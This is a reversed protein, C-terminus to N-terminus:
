SLNIKDDDTLVIGPKSKSLVAKYLLRNNQSGGDVIGATEAVLQKHSQIYKALSRSHTLRYVENYEESNKMWDAIESAGFTYKPNKRTIKRAYDAWACLGQITYDAEAITENTKEALFEPIWGVDDMGFVEAMLMICQELNVLRSQAAYHPNWKEKVLKFFLHLVHLHHAVWAERGGFKEIQKLKWTGEFSSTVVAGDEVKVPKNLELLFSRQILDSQKFPHQIATFGFVSMIRISREDAETFYKRMTIRPDPETVLRCLDDSMRQSLNKDTMHVNDIVHLGGSNAISAQWDKFDNPTNKLLATGTLINLRIEYLTSKGSGPEGTVIEVPLQTGRWRFLWPSIYYLLAAITAPRGPNKLRVEKMVTHWWCDLPEKHRKELEKTLIQSDLGNEITSEFLVEDAGNPLITYPAKREGTIKVYQSNNIQFRVVDEGSKHRAITRHPYVNTIPDEGGFQASIWDMIKTDALVSINYDRYLMRGFETEHIKAVNPDNINVKMLMKTEGDFYYMQMADPSYMRRGRADLETILSLATNQAMKRDLKNRQLMKGIFERVNPHRPFSSMKKNVSNLLDMFKDIGEEVLYDDLGTKKGDLFPLIVQKIQGLRFGKHRLEYGLRAAARQPGVALGERSDTDYIIYFVTKKFVCFDLLEKLGIAMPSLMLEDFNASPLKIQLLGSKSGHYPSIEAIKPIVITKNQWSDVGGFAICPIGMKCALAAKKEGETMCVYKYGVAKFCQMFNKPFYVHNPTEKPQLYKISTNNLIKARYFALLKGEMSYYPIVYGKAKSNVGLMERADADLIRASIDQFTLNSKALDEIMGDEPGTQLIVEDSM